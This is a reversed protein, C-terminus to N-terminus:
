VIVVRKRPAVPSAPRAKTVSNRSLSMCTTVAALCLASLSTSIESGLERFARSSETPGRSTILQAPITSIERKSCSGAAVQAILVPVGAASASQDLRLEIGYSCPCSINIKETTMQGIIAGPAM